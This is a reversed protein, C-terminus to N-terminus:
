TNNLEKLQCSLPPTVGHIACLIILPVFNTAYRASVEWIFLFLMIGCVCLIPIIVATGDNQLMARYTAVCTLLLFSFYIGSSVYRYTEFHESDYLIFGHLFTSRRPNDDLFDSQALTGDGFAVIEKEYFLKLMGIIGKNKVREKIKTLIADKRQAPDNFSRTFEFDQPNYRGDGELSMMIWHSYPTNLMEATAKNLHQSHMYSNFALFVSVILATCASALMIAAISGKHIFHHIIVAILAILVTFKVLMGIACTVGICLGLLAKHHKSGADLYKLYLFVILVPFVLSLVDTYFVPAMFYVPPFVLFCLLALIGGRIGLMKRCILVSLFVTLTVLLATTIMAIAYYDIPGFISTIKFVIFLLTMGGLNNPFYYFYNADCTWNISDMFNGTESWQVAGTFIAGLDFIPEYRLMYGFVINVSLLLGLGICVLIWYYQQLWQLHKNFYKNAFCLLIITVGMIAILPMPTLGYSNGFMCGGLVIVFLLLCIAMM